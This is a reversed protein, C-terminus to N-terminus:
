FETVILNHYLELFERGAYEAINESNYCLRSVILSNALGLARYSNRAAVGLFVLKGDVLKFYPFYKVQDINNWDAVWGENLAECVVQLMYFIKIPGHYKDPLQGCMPTITSYELVDCADEFSKVRETIDDYVQKGFLDQLMARTEGKASRYSNLVDNRNVTLKEM